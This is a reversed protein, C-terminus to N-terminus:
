RGALNGGARVFLAAVGALRRQPRNAPRGSGGLAPRLPPPLAFGCAVPATAIGAAYCLAAGLLTEAERRSGGAVMDQALSAPFVAALRRFGERDGGVGTLDLLGRWLAEAEGFQRA